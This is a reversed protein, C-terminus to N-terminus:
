GRLADFFRRLKEPSKIGPATEVGSNVDLLLAGIEDATAASAPDLGGSLIIRAMPLGQVLSWDFRRGTGGRLTKDATDFLVRDAGTGDINPTEDGVPISKWVECGEPLAPRLAAIYAPTEDGHLQVASLRLASALTAVENVAANVFVGVWDLPAAERVTAAREATVYRPSKEAFILGGFRAGADFAARADEPLTLGCVKVQGYVLDRCARDLDPRSMLSSGVLFSHCTGRFSVIEQHSSIGSEIVVIKDKPVEPALRRSTDLDISLDKLNRNNIGIIDAGLALARELEAADHVETLADVGISRAAALCATYMADDLVSMMLLVADAGFRRAEFVQYPELTFDKCLVPLDVTQSVTEVFSLRGDFFKEDALVSIADAYAAYTRAIAPLDFDPRIPGRSPSAKKCEMIFGTHPRRLADALSRTSPALDDKFTDLPRAAKRKEVEIRKNELITELAM